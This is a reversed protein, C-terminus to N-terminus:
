IDPGHTDREEQRKPQAAEARGAAGRIHPWDPWDSSESSKTAGEGAQRHGEKDMAGM